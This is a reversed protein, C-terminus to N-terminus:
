MYLNYPNHRDSKKILVDDEDDEPEVYDFRDYIDYMIDDSNANLMKEFPYVFEVHKFMENVIKEAEKDNEFKLDGTKTANKHKRFWPDCKKLSDVLTVFNDIMRHFKPQNRNLIKFMKYVFPNCKGFIRKIDITLYFVKCFLYAVNNAYIMFSPKQNSPITDINADHLSKYIYVDVGIRGNGDLKYVEPVCRVLDENLEPNLLYDFPIDSLKCSRRRDIEEDSENLRRKVVKAVDRMISEYLSRKNQRRM